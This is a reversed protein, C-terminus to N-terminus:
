LLNCDSHSMTLFKMFLMPLVALLAILHLVLDGMRGVAHAGMAPAM